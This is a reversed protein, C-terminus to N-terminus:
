REAQHTTFILLVCRDRTPAPKSAIADTWDIFINASGGSDGALWSRCPIPTMDLYGTRKLHRGGPDTRLELDIDGASKLQM